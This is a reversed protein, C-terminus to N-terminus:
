ISMLNWSYKYTYFSVGIKKEFLRNDASVENKLKRSCQGFAKLSLKMVRGMIRKCHALPVPLEKPKRQADTHGLLLTLTGILLVLSCIKISLNM